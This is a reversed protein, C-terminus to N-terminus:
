LSIHADGDADRRLRRPLPRRRLKMQRVSGIQGDSPFVVWVM